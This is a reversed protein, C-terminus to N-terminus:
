QMVIDHTAMHVRDSFDCFPLHVLIMSIDDSDWCDKDPGLEALVWQRRGGSAFLVM